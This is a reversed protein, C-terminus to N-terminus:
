ELHKDRILKNVWGQYIKRINETKEKAVEFLSRWGIAQMHRAPPESLSLGALYGAYSAGNEIVTTYGESKVTYRTGYRESNGKNGSAYQMGQGRVYYPPPPQNARTAPPYIRIGPTDLIETGIEEGAMGMYRPLDNALADMNRELVDLGEVKITITDTM